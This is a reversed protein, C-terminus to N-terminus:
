ECSHFQSCQARLVEIGLPRAQEIDTYSESAKADDRAGKETDAEEGLAM